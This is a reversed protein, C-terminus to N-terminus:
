QHSLLILKKASSMKLRIKTSINYESSVKAFHPKSFLPSKTQIPQSSAKTEFLSSGNGSGVAILNLSAYLRRQAEITKNFHAPVSCRYVYVICTKSMTGPLKAPWWQNLYLNSATLCWTTVHIPTSGSRDMHHWWPGRKSVYNLKLGLM